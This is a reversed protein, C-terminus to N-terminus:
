IWELRRGDIKLVRDQPVDMNAAEIESMGGWARFLSRITGGHAVVVAPPAVEAMAPVIRAMLMAYSEAKDGPPVFNWKDVDRRATSGPDKADIEAFTFTQWDGFHM